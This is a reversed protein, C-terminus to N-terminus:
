TERPVGLFQATMLTKGHDQVARSPNPRVPRPAIAEEGLWSLAKRLGWWDPGDEYWFRRVIQQQGPVYRLRERLSPWTWNYLVPCLGAGKGWRCTLQPM